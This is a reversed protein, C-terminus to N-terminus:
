SESNQVVSLAAAAVGRRIHALLRDRHAEFGLDRAGNLRVEGTSLGIVCRVHDDLAETKMALGLRESHEDEVGLYVIEYVYGLDDDRFVELQESSEYLISLLARLKMAPDVGESWAERAFAWDILDRSFALEIRLTRSQDDVILQLTSRIVTEPDDRMEAAVAALDVPDNVVGQEIFRLCVQLLIDEELSPPIPPPFKSPPLDPLFPLRRPAVLLRYAYLQARKADPDGLRDLLDRSLLAVSIALDFQESGFPLLALTLELLAKGADRRRDHDGVEVWALAHLVGTVHKMLARELAEDPAIERDFADGTSLALAAESGGNFWNMMYGGCVIVMVQHTVELGTAASAEILTGGHERMHTVLLDYRQIESDNVDILAIARVLALMVDHDSRM